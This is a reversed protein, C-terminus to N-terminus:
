RNQHSVSSHVVFVLSRYTMQLWRHAECCDVGFSPRSVLWVDLKGQVRPPDVLATVLMEAALVMLRQVTDTVIDYALTYSVNLM